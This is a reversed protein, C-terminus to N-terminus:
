RNVKRETYEGEIVEGQELTPRSEFPHRGPQAGPHYTRTYVKVSPRAFLLLVPILLFFLPLLFGSLMLILLFVIAFMFFYM